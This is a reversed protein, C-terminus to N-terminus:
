PAAVMVPPLPATVSVSAAEAFMVVEKPLTSARLMRPSREMRSLLPFTSIEEIPPAASMVLLKPLTAKESTFPRTFQVVLLPWTFPLETVPAETVIRSEKPFMSSSVILPASVASVELPLTLTRSARPLTSSFDEKPAMSADFIGFPMRATVPLPPTVSVSM